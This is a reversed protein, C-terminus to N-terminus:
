SKKVKLFENYYFNAEDEKGTLIDVMIKNLLESGTSVDIEDIEVNDFDSNTPIEVNIIWWKEIKVRLSMLGILNEVYDDFDNEFLCTMMDHALKNRLKKQREFNSLDNEDIVESEKFWELSAYLESKNKSLVKKSYESNYKYGTEHFGIMYFDKVSSVIYDKFSEFLTIYFACNILNSKLTEPKLFNAWKDHNTM